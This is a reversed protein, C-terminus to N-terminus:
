SANVKLEEIERGLDIVITLIGLALNISTVEEESTLMITVQRVSSRQTVFDFNDIESEPLVRIRLRNDIRTAEVREPDIGLLPVIFTMSEDTLELTGTLGHGNVTMKQTGDLHDIDFRESHPITNKNDSMNNGQKSTVISSLTHTHPAVHIKHFNETFQIEKEAIYKNLIAEYNTHKEKMVEKLELEKAEAILKPISKIEEKNLYATFTISPSDDIAANLQYDRIHM